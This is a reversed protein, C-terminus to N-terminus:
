SPKRKKLENIVTATSVGWSEHPIVSEVVMSGIREKTEPLRGPDSYDLIFMGRRCYQNKCLFHQKGDSTKSGAM